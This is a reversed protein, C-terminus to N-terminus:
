SSKKGKAKLREVRDARAEERVDAFLNKRVSPDSLNPKVQHPPQVQEKATDPEYRGTVSSADGQRQLSVFQYLLGSRSTLRESASVRSFVDPVTPAYADGAVDAFVLTLEVQNVYPLFLNYIESGGIVWLDGDVGHELKGAESVAEAVSHVPVAGESEWSEDRTLVLNRRGKLPRFSAPLSDWTKRGMVVTSGLTKSKFHALDEPVSWPLQNRLGIVGSVSQAWIANVTM